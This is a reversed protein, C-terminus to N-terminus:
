SDLRERGNYRAIIGDKKRGQAVMKGEVIDHLFNQHRDHLFNEHRVVHGLWKCKGHWSM